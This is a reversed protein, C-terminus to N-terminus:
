FLAYQNAATKARVGRPKRERSPEPPLLEPPMGVPAARLDELEAALRRNEGELRLRRVEADSLRGIAVTLEAQIEHVTARLGAQAEREDALVQQTEALEARLRIVDSAARAAEFMSTPAGDAGRGQKLRENEGRLDRVENRLHFIADELAARGAGSGGDVLEALAVFDSGAEALLRHAARLAGLAEADNDSAALALVKALRQLDMASIEYAAFFAVGLIHTM